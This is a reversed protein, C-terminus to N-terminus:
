GISKRTEEDAQKFMEVFINYIEKAPLANLARYMVRNMTLTDSLSRSLIQSMFKTDQFTEEPILLLDVWRLM